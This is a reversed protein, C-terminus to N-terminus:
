FKTYSEFGHCAIDKLSKLAWPYTLGPPPCEDVQSLKPPIPHPVTLCPVPLLSLM